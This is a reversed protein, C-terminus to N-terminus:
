VAPGGGSEFFFDDHGLITAFNDRAKGGFLEQHSARVVESGTTWQRGRAFRLRIQVIWSRQFSYFTSRISRSSREFLELLPSSNSKAFSPIMGASPTACSFPVSSLQSLGSPWDTVLPSGSMSTSVSLAVTSISAGAEPIKVFTVAEAPSSIGTPFLIATM